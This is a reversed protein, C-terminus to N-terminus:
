HLHLPESSDILMAANSILNISLGLSNFKCIVVFVGYISM